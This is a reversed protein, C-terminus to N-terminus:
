SRFIFMDVILKPCMGLSFTSFEVRKEDIRPCVTWISLKKLGGFNAGIAEFISKSVESVHITLSQLNSCSSIKQIDALIERPLCFMRSALPRLTLSHLDSGTDVREFIGRSGDFARLKPFHFLINHDKFDHVPKIYLSELSSAPSLLLSITDFFANAESANDDATSSEPTQITTMGRLHTTLPLAMDIGIHRLSDIRLVDLWGVSGRDGPSLYPMDSKFTINTVNLPPPITTAMITCDQVELTRLNVLQCLNTLAM